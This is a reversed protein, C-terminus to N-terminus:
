VPESQDDPSEQTPESPESVEYRAVKIPTGDKAWKKVVKQHEKSWGVLQVRKGSKHVGGVGTTQMKPKPGRKGPEPIEARKEVVFEKIDEDIMVDTCYVSEDEQGLVSEKVSAAWEQVEPLHRIAPGAFELIDRARKETVGTLRSLERMNSIGIGEMQLARWFCFSHERSNSFFPCHHPLTAGDNALSYESAEAGLPCIGRPPEPLRRVCTEAMRTDTSKEM